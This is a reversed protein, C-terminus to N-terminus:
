WGGTGNDRFRPAEVKQFGWPRDLGTIPNSYRSEEYIRCQLNCCHTLTLFSSIFPFLYEDTYLLCGWMQYRLWSICRRQLFFSSVLRMIRDHTCRSEYNDKKPSKVVNRDTIKVASDVFRLQNTPPTKWNMQLHVHASIRSGYIWM